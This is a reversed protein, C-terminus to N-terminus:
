AEEAHDIQCGDPEPEFEDVGGLGNRCLIFLAAKGTPFPHGGPLSNVGGPWYRDLKTSEM